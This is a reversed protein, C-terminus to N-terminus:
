WRPRNREAAEREARAEQEKAEAKRAAAAWSASLRKIEADYARREDASLGARAEELSDYPGRWELNRTDAYGTPTAFSVRAPWRLGALIIWFGPERATLGRYKRYPSHADKVEAYGRQNPEKVEVILPPAAVAAGSDRAKSSQAPAPM